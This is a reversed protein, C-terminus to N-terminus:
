YLRTIVLVISVLKYENNVLQYLRTSVLVLTYECRCSLVCFSRM